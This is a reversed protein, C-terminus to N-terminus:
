KAQGNCEPAKGILYEKLWKYNKIYDLLLLDDDFHISYKEEIRIILTIISISDYGFDTLLDTYDNIDESTMSKDVSCEIILQDLTKIIDNSDMM